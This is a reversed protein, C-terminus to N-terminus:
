KKGMLGWSTNKYQSNPDRVVRASGQSRVTEHLIGGFAVLAMDFTSPCISSLTAERTFTVAPLLMHIFMGGVVKLRSGLSKDNYRNCGLLLDCLGICCHIKNRLVIYM